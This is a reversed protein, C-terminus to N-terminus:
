QQGVSARLLIEDIIQGIRLGRGTFVAFSMSPGHDRRM